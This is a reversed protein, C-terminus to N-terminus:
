RMYTKLHEIDEKDEYSFKYEVQPHRSKLLTQGISDVYREARLIQKLFISQPTEENHFAAYRGARKCLIHGIEHYVVSLFWEKNPIEKDFLLITEQKLLTVGYFGRMEAPALEVAFHISFELSLKELLSQKWRSLEKFTVKSATFPTLLGKSSDRLLKLFDLRRYM